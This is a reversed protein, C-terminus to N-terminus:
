GSEDLIGGLVARDGLLLYESGDHREVGVVVEFVENSFDSDFGFWQHYVKEAIVVGVNLVHFGV